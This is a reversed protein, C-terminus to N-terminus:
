LFYLTLIYGKIKQYQIALKLIDTMDQISCDTHIEIIGYVNRDSNDESIIIDHSGEWNEAVSILNGNEVYQSVGYDDIDNMIQKITM